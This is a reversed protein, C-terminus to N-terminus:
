ARANDNHELDTVRQQNGPKIRMFIKFLFMKKM